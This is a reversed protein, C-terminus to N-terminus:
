IKIDASSLKFFTKYGQTWNEIVTLEIIMSCTPISGSQTTPSMPTLVLSVLNQVALM